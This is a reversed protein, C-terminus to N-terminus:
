QDDQQDQDGCHPCAVRGSNMAQHYFHETSAAILVMAVLCAILKLRHQGHACQWALGAAIVFSIASIFELSKWIQFAFNVKWGDSLIWMGTFILLGVASVWISIAAKRKEEDRERHWDDWNPEDVYPRREWLEDTPRRYAMVSNWLAFSIGLLLPALITFDFDLALKRM